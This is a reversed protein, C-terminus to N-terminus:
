INAGGEEVQSKHCWILFFNIKGCCFGNRANYTNGYFCIMESSTFVAFDRHQQWRTIVTIEIHLMLHFIGHTCPRVVPEHAKPLQKAIAWTKQPNSWHMPSHATINQWWAVTCHRVINLTHRGNTSTLSLVNCFLTRNLEKKVRTRWYFLHCMPGYHVFIDMDYFHSNFTVIVTLHCQSKFIATKFPVNRDKLDQSSCYKQDM